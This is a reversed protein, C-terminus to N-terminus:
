IAIRRLAIQLMIRDTGALEFFARLKVFIHKTKAMHFRGGTVSIM